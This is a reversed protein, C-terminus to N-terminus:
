RFLVMVTHLRGCLPFEYDTYKTTLTQFYYKLETEAPRTEEEESDTSDAIEQESVYMM